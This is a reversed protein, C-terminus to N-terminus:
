TARLEREELIYPTLSNEIMKSYNHVDLSGLKHDSLAYKEFEKRM